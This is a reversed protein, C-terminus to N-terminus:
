GHYNKPWFSAILWYIVLCLMYMGLLAEALPASEEILIRYLLEEAGSYKDAILLLMVGVSWFLAYHSTIALFEKGEDEYDMSWALGIPLGFFMLLILGMQGFTAESHGIAVTILGYAVACAAVVAGIKIWRVKVAEASTRFSKKAM